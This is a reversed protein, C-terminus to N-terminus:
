DDKSIADFLSMQLKDGSKAAKKLSFVQRVTLGLALAADNTTIKGAVLDNLVQSREQRKKMNRLNPIELVGGGFHVSLQQALELPVYRVLESKETPKKPVKVKAGGAREVLELMAPVGIAEAIERATEPLSAMPDDGASDGSMRKTMMM